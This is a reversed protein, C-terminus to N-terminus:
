SFNSGFIGGGSGYSGSSGGGEEGYVYQNTGAKRTFSHVRYTGAEKVKINNENLTLGTFDVSLGHAGLVVTAGARLGYGTPSYNSTITKTDGQGYPGINPTFCVIAGDFDTAPIAQEHISAISVGAEICLSNSQLHFNGNAADAFLPDATIRHSGGNNTINTLGVGTGFFVNYDIDADVGQPVGSIISSGTGNYFISNKVKLGMNNARVGASTYGTHLGHALDISCDLGAYIQHSGGDIIYHTGKIAAGAKEASIARVSPHLTFRTRRFEYAGAVGV